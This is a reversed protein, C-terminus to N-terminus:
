YAMYRWNVNINHKFLKTLHHSPTRRWRWLYWQIDSMRPKRINPPCHIPKSGLNRGRGARGWSVRGLVLDLGLWLSLHVVRLWCGINLNTSGFGNVLRTWKGLSIDIKFFRFVMKKQNQNRDRQALDGATTLSIEAWLIQHKQNNYEGKEWIVM